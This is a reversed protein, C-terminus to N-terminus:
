TQLEDSEKLEAGLFPALVRASMRGDHVERAFRTGDKGRDRYGAPNGAIERIRDAADALRAEVIPLESGTEGLVHRRVADSVHGVVVRGAAMAECAAVGYDGIRFQDLVIDADRYMAPMQRWTVGEIRRYEILGDAALAHLEDDLSASGKMPSNTPAFAVVPVDRTLPEAGGAWVNPEVVVPLWHSGPVELLGPTSVFSPLGSAAVFARRALSNRELIATSV